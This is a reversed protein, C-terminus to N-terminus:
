KKSSDLIGDWGPQGENHFNYIRSFRHADNYRPMNYAVMAYMEGFEHMIINSRSVRTGNDMQFQHTPHILLEGDGQVPYFNTKQQSNRMGNRVSSIIADLQNPQSTVGWYKKKNNWSQIFEGGYDVRLTFVYDSGIICDGIFLANKNGTATAFERWLGEFTMEGDEGVKVFGSYFTDGLTEKMDEKYSEDGWSSNFIYLRMGDPDVVRMPNNICYNYPSFGPYKDALPDVSHWRGIESDYYRAGFYDYGTENDREKETFRYKGNADAQNYEKKYSGFSYYDQASATTGDAKLTVRITGLHDKIYYLRTTKDAEVRGILGAGYLNVM